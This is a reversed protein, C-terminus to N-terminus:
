DRVDGGHGFGLKQWPVVIGIWGVRATCFGFVWICLWPKVVWAMESQWSDILGAFVLLLLNLCCGGLENRCWQSWRVEGHEGAMLLDCDVVMFVWAMSGILEVM